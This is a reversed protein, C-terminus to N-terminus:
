NIKFRYRAMSFYRQGAKLVISPFKTQDLPDPLNQSSMIFATRHTNYYRQKMTSKRHVISGSNFQLGPQDTFVEMIIGSEDGKVKAVPSNRSHKNLVYNHYYGKGNQLQESHDNIRSGITFGRRFDLPTGTVNKVQGEPIFASTIPTFYDAKIQVRHNLITGSSEGNLNFLIHNSLNIIKIKDSLADYSVKLSNDETLSYGVKIKLNGQFSSYTFEVATQDPQMSNWVVDHPGKKGRPMVNVCDNIYLAYTHSDPVFKGKVMRNRLSGITGAFHNETSNHYGKTGTFRQVIDTMKGNKDAIFLSLLRAGYNTIYACTGQKNKLEFLQVQKGEVTINFHASAYNFHVDGELKELSVSKVPNYYAECLKVPAM